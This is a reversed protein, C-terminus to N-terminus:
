RLINRLDQLLDQFEPDAENKSPPLNVPFDAIIKGPQPSFVLIRDALKIAEYINHTVWLVTPKRDAWLELLEATLNERTLEDLAAFPEDMLWLEAKQILLRALALRQQMGGSLTHPYQNAADSLKVTDLVQKIQKQPSKGNPHFRVAMELNQKVSLWPMLAPKQAMWAIKKSQVAKDPNEGNLIIEGSSPQILNAMLRLLTSKGCGSPGILAVFQGPPIELNIKEIAQVLHGNQYQHSLNKISIM